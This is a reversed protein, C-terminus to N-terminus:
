NDFLDVLLKEVSPERLELDIISFENLISMIRNALDDRSIMLEIYSDRYELIDGYKRFEDVSYDGSLEISLIKSPCLKNRLENLHGDFSLYGKDIVLVRECVATIDAMYHSTLIITAGYTRNYNKLFERVRVQANIDLGLTPEDLFLIDPRHILSALIEAKMREGLSLKRVPRYLEQGLELMEALEKIRLSATRDSLGYVAANVRLTEIPALDWILQQKQGMILTIKELFRNQRFQPIYGSINLQGSSPYLLGCLMKLTTTKGAGNPGLFGVIEGSNIEFSIDKVANISITERKLFHKLTGKWGSLKKPVLFKKSLNQVSIIAM